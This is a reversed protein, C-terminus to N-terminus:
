PIEGRAASRRADNPDHAKLTTQTSSSFTIGERM